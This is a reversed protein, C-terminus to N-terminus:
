LDKVLRFEALVAGRKELNQMITARHEPTIGSGMILWGLRGDWKESPRHHPLFIFKTLGIRLAQQIEEDSMDLAIANTALFQATAPTGPAFRLSANLLLKESGLNGSVKFSVPSERDAVNVPLNLRAPLKIMKRDGEVAQIEADRLGSLVVQIADSLQLREHGFTSEVTEGVDSASSPTKSGSSKEPAPEVAKLSSGALAFLGACVMSFAIRRMSLEGKSLSSLPAM